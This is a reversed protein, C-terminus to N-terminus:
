RYRGIARQTLTNRAWMLQEAPMTNLRLRGGKLSWMRDDPNHNWQWIRGLRKGDFNDSREYPAHIPETDRAATNPKLWTRPARGLNGELGLM